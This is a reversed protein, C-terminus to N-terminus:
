FARRARRAQGAARRALTGPEREWAADSFETTNGWVTLRSVARAAYYL